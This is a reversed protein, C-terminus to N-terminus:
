LGLQQLQLNLLLRIVQSLIEATQQVLASFGFVRVSVTLDAQPHMGVAASVCATAAPALENLVQQLM